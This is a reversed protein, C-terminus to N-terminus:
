STELIRALETTSHEGRVFRILLAAQVRASPAIWYIEKNKLTSPQPIEMEEDMRSELTLTLVETANFLAEELSLGETIAEKFDAFQVLYRGENSDYSIQASLTNESLNLERKGRLLLCCVKELIVNAM